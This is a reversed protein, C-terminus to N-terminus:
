PPASVRATGHPLDLLNQGFVLVSRGLLTVRRHLDAAPQAPGLVAVAAPVVLHPTEPPQRDTDVFVRLMYQAQTREDGLMTQAVVRGTRVNAVSEPSALVQRVQQESIQRAADGTAAPMEARASNM